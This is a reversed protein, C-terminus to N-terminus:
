FVCSLVLFCGGCVVCVHFCVIPFLMFCTPAHHPSSVVRTGDLLVHFCFFSSSLLGLCSLLGDARSLAGEGGFCSGRLVIM